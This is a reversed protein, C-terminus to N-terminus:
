SAMVKSVFRSRPRKKKCIAFCEPCRVKEGLGDVYPPWLGITSGSVAVRLGKLGCASECTGDPDFPIGDLEVAHLVNPWRKRLGIVPASFFVAILPIGEESYARNSAESM